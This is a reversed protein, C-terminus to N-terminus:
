KHHVRIYLPGIGLYGIFEFSYPVTPAWEFFAKTEGKKPNFTWDDFVLIAGDSLRGTLFALTDVASAYLDGDVRAYCIQQIAQAEPLKTTDCFWGKILKIHPRQDTRLYARVRDLPAEYMGEQWGMGEDEVGPVPLGEFSDFGYISRELGIEENIDAIISLWKGEYVGFEVINGLTENTKIETLLQKAM